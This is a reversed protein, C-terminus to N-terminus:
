RVYKMTRSAILAQFHAYSVRLDGGGCGMQIDPTVTGHFDTGGTILLDFKRALQVYRTTEEHTHRPYYVELGMLGIPRLQRILAELGQTGNCKVLYPHALVPVGGAAHILDFADRCSIREKGVYAPCGDGLYRDFADNIDTALGARIMASAVHPRGASGEGVEANVQELTLPLGLEVLREVIRRTREERIKRFRALTRGLPRDDPDIGYGLIHLGGQAIDGGPSAASIEIGTIIHLAPPLPYLFAQRTGELTDHDTIAVAELGLESALRVIEAPTLTGDSATSHVHLDICGRPDCDM